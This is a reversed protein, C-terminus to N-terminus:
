CTVCAITCKLIRIIKLYDPRYIESQAIPQPRFAASTRSLCSKLFYSSPTLLDYGTAGAKIKAYMSENSEFTDVIIRCKQEKEFRQLLEPKFYEAWTYIKLEPTKRRCGAPIWCLILSLLILSRIKM